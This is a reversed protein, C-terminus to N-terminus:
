EGTATRRPPRAAAPDTPQQSGRRRAGRLAAAVADQQPTSPQSAWRQLARQWIDEPAMGLEDAYGQVMLDLDRPTTEGREFRSIVGETRRIRAGIEVALVDHEERLERAVAGLTKIIPERM